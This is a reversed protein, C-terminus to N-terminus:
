AKTISRDKTTLLKRATRSGVRGSPKQRKFDVGNEVIITGHLGGSQFSSGCAAWEPERENLQDHGGGNQDDQGPQRDRQRPHRDLPFFLALQPVIQPLQAVGDVAVFIGGIALCELDLHAGLAIRRVQFGQHFTHIHAAFFNAEQAANGFIRHGVARFPAHTGHLVIGVRIGPASLVNKIHEGLRLARARRCPTCSRTIAFRVLLRSRPKVKISSIITM